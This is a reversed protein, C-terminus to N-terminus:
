PVPPKAQDSFGQERGNKATAPITWLNFVRQQKAKEPM